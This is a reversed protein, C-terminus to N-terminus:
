FAINVFLTSAVTEMPLTDSIQRFLIETINLDVREYHHDFSCCFCPILFKM